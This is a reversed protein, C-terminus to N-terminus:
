STTMRLRQLVAVLAPAVNVTWAGPGYRGVHGM